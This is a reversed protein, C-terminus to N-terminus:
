PQVMARIIEAADYRGNVYGAGSESPDDAYDAPIIEVVKAAMERAQAFGEARAAALAAITLATESPKPM